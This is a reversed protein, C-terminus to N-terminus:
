CRAYCWSGWLIHFILACQCYFQGIIFGNIFINFNQSSVSLTKNM